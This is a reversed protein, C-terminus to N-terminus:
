APELRTVGAVRDFDRDYSYLEAPRSREVVAATLADEFDLHPYTAYIDLARLYRRKNTVRLGPLVLLPKLRASVDAPSLAYLRPSSLVYAVEALVSESTTAREHGAQLREFLARCAAARAADTPSAPQVLFRLFINADLFRM